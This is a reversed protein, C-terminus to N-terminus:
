PRIEEVTDTAIWGDTNGTELFVLRGPCTECVSVASIADVDQNRMADSESRSQAAM